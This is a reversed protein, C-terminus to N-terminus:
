PRTMDVDTRTNARVQIRRTRDVTRGDEIWRAHVEYTYDRGPTLPPSVFARQAGTQRTPVGDFWLAANEPVMVEVDAANWATAATWEEPPYYDSYRVTTPASGYNNLGYDHFGYPYFDWSHRYGWTGSYFDAAAYGPVYGYYGAPYVEGPWHANGVSVVVLAAVVAAAAVLSFSRQLM